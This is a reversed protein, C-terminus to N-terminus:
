KIMKMEKAAEVYTRVFQRDFKEARRLIKTDLDEVLLEERNESGEKLIGREPCIILSHGFSKIPIPKGWM